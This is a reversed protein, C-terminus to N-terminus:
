KIAFTANMFLYVETNFTIGTSSNFAVEKANKAIHLIKNDSNVNGLFYTSQQCASPLTFFIDTNKYTGAKLQVFGCLIGLRGIETYLGESM